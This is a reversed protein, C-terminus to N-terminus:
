DQSIFEKPLMESQLPPRHGDPILALSKVVFNRNYAAAVIEHRSRLTGGTM